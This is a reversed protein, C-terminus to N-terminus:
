ATVGRKLLKSVVTGPFVPLGTLLPFLGRFMEDVSKVATVRYKPLGNKMDGRYLQELTKITDGVSQYSQDLTRGVITDAKMSNSVPKGEMSSKIIDLAPAIINGGGYVSSLNEKLVEYSKEAIWSGNHKKKDDGSLSGMAAQFATNVATMYIANGIAVTAMRGAAHANSIKGAKWDSYARSLINFNKNGQSQFITLMKWAINKRSELAVGSMDTLSTANQTRNVVRETERATKEMIAKESMGPNEKRIRAETGEWAVSTNIRDFLQLMRLPSKPSYWPIEETVGGTRSFEPSLIDAGSGEYRQRIEPSYQWLKKRVDELHGATNKIGNWVDGPTMESMMTFIGGFQKLM